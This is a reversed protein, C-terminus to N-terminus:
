LESSLLILDSDMRDTVIKIKRPQRAAIEKVQTRIENAEETHTPCFELMILALNDTHSLYVQAQQNNHMEACHQAMKLFHNAFHHIVRALRVSNMTQISKTRVPLNKQDTPKMSVVRAAEAKNNASDALQKLRALEEDEVVAPSDGAPSSSTPESKLRGKPIAHLLNRKRMFYHPLSKSQLGTHIEKLIHILLSGMNTQSKKGHNEMVWFLVHAWISESGESVVGSLFAKHLLNCVIYCRMHAYPLHLLLQHELRSFQIDWATVVKSKGPVKNPVRMPVLNCGLSGARAVFDASPWNHKRERLKWEFCSNPLFAVPITPCCTLEALTGSQTFSMKVVPCMKKPSHVEETEVQLKDMLKPFSDDAFYNFFPQSALVPAYEQDKKAMQYGPIVDEPNPPMLAKRFCKHPLRINEPRSADLADGWEDNISYTSGARGTSNTVGDDVTLSQQDTNISADDLCDMSNISMARSMPQSISEGGLSSSIKQSPATIVKLDYVRDEPGLFPNNKELRVNETLKEQFASMSWAARGWSVLHSTMEEEEQQQIDLIQLRDKTYDNLFEVSLLLNNLVFLAPQQVLDQKMDKFNALKRQLGANMKKEIDTAQRRLKVTPGQEEEEETNKPTMKAGSSSTEAAPGVNVPRSQCCGM